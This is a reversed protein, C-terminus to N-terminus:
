KMIIDDIKQEFNMNKIKEQLFNLIKMKNLYLEIKMQQDQTRVQIKNYKIFASFEYNSFFEKKFVSLIWSSFFIDDTIIKKRKKTIIDKIDLM